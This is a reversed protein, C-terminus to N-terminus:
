SRPRDVNFKLLRLKPAALPDLIRAIEIAHTGCLPHYAATRPIKEDLFRRVVHPWDRMYKFSSFNEPSALEWPYHYSFPSEGGRSNECMVCLYRAPVHHFGRYKGSEIASLIGQKREDSALCAGLFREPDDLLVQGQTPCGEDFLKCVWADAPLRIAAEPCNPRSEDGSHQARQLYRAGDSDLIQGVHARIANMVRFESTRRATALVGKRHYATATFTMRSRDLRVLVNSRM